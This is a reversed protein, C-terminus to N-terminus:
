VPTARWRGGTDESTTSSPRKRLTALVDKKELEGNDPETTAGSARDDTKDDVHSSGDDWERLLEVALM